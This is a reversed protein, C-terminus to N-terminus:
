QAIWNISLYPDFMPTALFDSLIVAVEKGKENGKIWSPLRPLATLEGLLDPCIGAAL